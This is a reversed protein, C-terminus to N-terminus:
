VEVGEKRVAEELCPDHFPCIDCDDHAFTGFCAPKSEVGSLGIAAKQCKPCELRGAYGHPYTVVRGHIPCKIIYHPLSGKWGERTKHGIYLRGTTRFVIKQWLNMDYGGKDALSGMETM